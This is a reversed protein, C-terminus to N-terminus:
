QKALSNLADALNDYSAFFDLFGTISLTDQNTENLNILSPRYGGDTLERCLLLLSRMGGASIHSVQDMDLLFKRGPEVLPLLTDHLTAATRGNVEGNLHIITIDQQETTTINMLDLRKM